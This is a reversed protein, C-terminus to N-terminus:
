ITKAKPLNEWQSLVCSFLMKPVLEMAVDLVAARSQGLLDFPVTTMASADASPTNTPAVAVSALGNRYPELISLLIGASLALTCWQM